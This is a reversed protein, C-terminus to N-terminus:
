AAIIEAKTLMFVNRNRNFLRNERSKSGMCHFLIELVKFKRMLLDAGKVLGADAEKVM